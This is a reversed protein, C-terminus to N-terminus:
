LFYCRLLLESLNKFFIISAYCVYYFARIKLTCSLINRCMIAGMFSDSLDLYPVDGSELSSVGARECDTIVIQKRSTAPTRVEM